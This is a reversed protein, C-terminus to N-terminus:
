SYSRKLAVYPLQCFVPQEEDDPRVIAEGWINGGDACSLAIHYASHLVPAAPSLPQGGSETTRTQIHTDGKDTIVKLTQAHFHTAKGSTHEIRMLCRWWYKGESKGLYFPFATIRYDGTTKSFATTPRFWDKEMFTTLMPSPEHWTGNFHLLKEALDGTPAPKHEIAILDDETAYEIGRIGHLVGDENLYTVVNEPAIGDRVIGYLVIPEEDCPINWSCLVKGQFGNLRHEISQGSAHKPLIDASQLNVNKFSSQAAAALSSQWRVSIVNRCVRSLAIAGRLEM